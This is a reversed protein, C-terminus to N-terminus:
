NSAESPNASLRQSFYRTSPTNLALSKSVIDAKYPTAHPFVPFRYIGCLFQHFIKLTQLIMIKSISLKYIILQIKVDNKCCVKDRNEDRNQEPHGVCVTSYIFM